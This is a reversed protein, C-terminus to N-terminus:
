FIRTVFSEWPLEILTSRPSHSDRPLAFGIVVNFPLPTPKVESSKQRTPRLDADRFLKEYKKRM